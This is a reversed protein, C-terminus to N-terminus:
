PAIKFEEYQAVGELLPGGNVSGELAGIWRTYLSAAALTVFRATVNFKLVGEDGVDM